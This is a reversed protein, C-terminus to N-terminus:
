NKEWLWYSEKAVIDYNAYEEIYHLVKENISNLHTNSNSVASFSITLLNLDDQNNTESVSINFKNKLRRILSERISRKDKLSHIEYLKLIVETAVVKM